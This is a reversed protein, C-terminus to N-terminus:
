FTAYRNLIFIFLIRKFLHDNNEDILEFNNRKFEYNDSFFTYCLLQICEKIDYYFFTKIHNVWWIYINYYENRNILEWQHEFISSTCIINIINVNILTKEKDFVNWLDM